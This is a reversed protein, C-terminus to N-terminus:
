TNQSLLEFIQKKFINGIPLISGDKLKLSSNEVIDIVKINVVYSKHIQIFNEKAMETVFDGINKREVYEGSITHIHLYHKYSEVYQISSLRVKSLSAGNQIVYSKFRSQIINEFDKLFENLDRSFQNLQLYALPELKYGAKILEIDERGILIIIQQYNDKKLASLKDIDEKTRIEIFYIDYYNRHHYDSIKIDNGLQKLCRTLLDKIDLCEVKLAVRIM